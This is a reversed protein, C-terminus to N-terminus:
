PTAKVAHSFFTAYREATIRVMGGPAQDSHGYELPIAYPLNNVIYLKTGLVNAAAIAAHIRAVTATSDTAMAQGKSIFRGSANDRYRQTKALKARADPNGSPASGEGFQWNARFRGTDVPSMQVISTSMDFLVKKVVGAANAKFKEVFARVDVAFTSAKV